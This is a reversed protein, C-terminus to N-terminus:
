WEMCWKAGRDHLFEEASGFVLQPAEAPQASAAEHTHSDTGPDSFLGIEEAM